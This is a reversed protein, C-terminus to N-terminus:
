NITSSTKSASLLWFTVSVLCFQLPFNHYNKYSHFYTWSHIYSLSFNMTMLNSIGFKTHNIINAVQYFHYQLYKGRNLRHSKIRTFINTCGHLKLTMSKIVGKLMNFCKTIIFWHAKHLSQFKRERNDVDTALMYM